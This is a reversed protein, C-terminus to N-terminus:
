WTFRPHRPRMRSERRVERIGSTKGDYSIKAQGLTLSVAATQVGPLAKLAREVKGVCSSCTMGEVSLVISDFGADASSKTDLHRATYGLDNIANM